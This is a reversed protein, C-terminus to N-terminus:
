QNCLSTGLAFIPNLLAIDAPHILNSLDPSLGLTNLFTLKSFDQRVISFHFTYLTVKM